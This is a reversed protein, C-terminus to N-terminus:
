HYLPPLDREDRGEGVDEEGPGRRQIGGNEGATGGGAEECIGDRHQHEEREGIFTRFVGGAM